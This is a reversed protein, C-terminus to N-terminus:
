SVPVDGDGAIIRRSRTSGLQIEVRDPRQEAARRQPALRHNTAIAEKGDLFFNWYANTLPCARPGIRETPLFECDRCFNTMKKMYNGGAVYPKTSTLGGDAFTGMGLVNAEMVWEAGDVFNEAMWDNLALPEIGALTAANTLVMLREIHHTWGYDRLHGLTHNMCSMEHAGFTRWTLPLPNTARLSNLSRYEDTRLQHWGWVWERWGIIQRVFGEISALPALGNEFTTIAAKLVERPHLLGLNLAVSLRTHALHWNEASAADEYPGFHAIIRTMADSLQDLADARNRPWFELADGGPHTKELQRVIEEEASNLPRSWPTPWEGGNKPLPLRNEEDYNWRDGVPEGDVMLVDLRQRQNRYFKEMTPVRPGSVMRRFEEISTLYFPDDLMEVNLRQFLATARRGRPHNMRIVSPTYAARHAAIGETFNRAMRYDVEFGLSRVDEAFARMASLYLATRTRHRPATLLVDSEIMVIVTSTSLTAWPTVETSLQDGLIFFSETM